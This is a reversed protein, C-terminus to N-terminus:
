MTSYIQILHLDYMHLNSNVQCKVRQNGVDLAVMREVEGCVLHQIRQSMKALQQKLECIEENLQKNQELVKELNLRVPTMADSSPTANEQCM